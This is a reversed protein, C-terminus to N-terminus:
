EDFVVGSGERTHEQVAMIQRTVGFSCNLAWELCREAGTLECDPRRSGVGTRGGLGRNM